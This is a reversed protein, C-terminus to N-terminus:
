RDYRLYRQRTGDERTLARFAKQALDFAVESEDIANKMDAEADLIANEAAKDAEKAYRDIKEEAEIMMQSTTINANSPGMLRARHETAKIVREVTSRTNEMRRLSPMDLKARVRSIARSIRLAEDESERLASWPNFLLDRYVSVAKKAKNKTEVRIEEERTNGAGTDWIRVLRLTIHSKDGYVEKVLFHNPLTHYPISGEDPLLCQDNPAFGESALKSERKSWRYVQLKIKGFTMPEEETETGCWVKTIFQGTFANRVSVTLATLGTDSNVGDSEGDEMYSYWYTSDGVPGWFMFKDYINHWAKRPLTQLSLNPIKATSCKDCKYNITSLSPPICKAHYVDSCQTCTVPTHKMDESDREEMSGEFFWFGESCKKCSEKFLVTNNARHCAQSLRKAVPFWRWCNPDTQISWDHMNIPHSNYISM